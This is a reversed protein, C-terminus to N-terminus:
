KSFTAQVKTDANMVVTCVPSNGTCAGSWGVQTKGAAPVATLWVRAGLSDTASCTSGCNIGAPVSQVAGTNNSSVVLKAGTVAVGAGGGGAGGGGGGATVFAATIGTEGNLTVTCTGANGACAGGRLAFVSGSSAKATLTVTSGPVYVGYCKNGCRYVKNGSSVSGSGSVAGSLADVNLHAAVNQAGIADGLECPGPATCTLNACLAEHTIPDYAGAYPYHEYRRIV